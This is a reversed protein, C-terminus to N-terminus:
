SKIWKSLYELFDGLRAHIESTHDGDDEVYTAPLLSEELFSAFDRNSQPVGFQDRRGASLWFNIPYLKKNYDKLLRDLEPRYMGVYASFSGVISFVEPHALALHLSRYGGGMSHGAIARSERSPITHFTADVFPVVDRMLYKDYNGVGAIDPCVIIFPKIKKNQLLGDAIVGVNAETMLKGYGGGLFTLNNGGIGHLLYLVPFSAGPRSYDEPLYM